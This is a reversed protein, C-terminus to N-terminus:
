AAKTTYGKLKRLEKILGKEIGVAVSAGAAATAAATGPRMFPKAPVFGGAKGTAPAGRGNTRKLRGGVAIRHGYEVLHAYNAPNDGGRASQGKKVWKGGKFYAREAGIIAVANSNKPYKRVVAGISKQLAGTLKSRGAAAKISRVVPRAGERVGDALIRTRMADPLKQLVAHLETFGTIPKRIYASNAM